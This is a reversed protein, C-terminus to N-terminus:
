GKRSEILSVFARVNGALNGDLYLASIVAACRCGADLVQNISERTIGGIAVVPKLSDSCVEAVIGTGFGPLLEGAKSSTHFVPGIAIYDATSNFAERAEVISHTSLGTIMDNRLIECASDPSLDDQGLHLGSAKCLLAIDPRDNIIFLVGNKRCIDSVASATKLFEGSPSHKMRLQMIRCGEGAMIEASRAMDPINLFATDLIGYLSYNFKELIYNKKIVAIGRQELDYLTFRINQFLSSGPLPLTKSFEEIVRVAECARRINSFFLDEYGTRKKESETDIFKQSDLNVNRSVALSNGFIESVAGHLRHRLDKFESSISNRICFRFIDECVRIGELARNVNADVATDVGKRM